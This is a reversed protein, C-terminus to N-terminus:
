DELEASTVWAQGERIEVIVVRDGSRFTRQDRTIARLKLTTSDRKVRISGPQQPTISVTVEAIRGVCDQISTLSNINSNLRFVSIVMVILIGIAIGIGIAVILNSVIFNFIM